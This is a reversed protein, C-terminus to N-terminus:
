EAWATLGCVRWHYHMVAALWPGQRRRMAEAAGDALAQVKASEAQAVASGTADAAKQLQLAASYLESRIAPLNIDDMYESARQLTYAARARAETLLVEPETVGPDAAGPQAFQIVRGGVFGSNKNRILDKYRVALRVVERQGSGPPVRVILVFSHEDGGRFTPLLFRVGGDFDRQRNAAIGKDRAIRQDSAVEVQRARLSEAAGLPESGVVELLDVDLPLSIRVDVAEAAQQSLVELEDVIVAPLAAADRVFHHNGGGELAIRNMLHADFDHGLGLGSTTIGQGLARATDATIEYPERPGVTALGDSILLVRHTAQGVYSGRAQQYGLQLGAYTNTEGRPKLQCVQRSVEALALSGSTPAALIRATESFVSVSMSDTPLLRQSLLQVAACVQQWPKGKMSGSADLVLHLRLPLRAVPRQDAARLRVRVTVPGGGAPLQKHSLDIAVKLASGQPQPLSPRAQAAAIAASNAMWAGGAGAGKQISAQLHQLYGRGPLYTSRYRADKPYTAVPQPLRRLQRDPSRYGVPALSPQQPGPQLHPRAIQLPRERRVAFGGAPRDLEITLADAHGPKASPLRESRGATSQDKDEAANPKAAGGPAGVDKKAVAKAPMGAGGSAAAPESSAGAINGVGAADTAPADAAKGKAEERPAAAHDDPAAGRAAAARVAGPQGEPAAEPPAAEGYAQKADWNDPEMERDPDATVATPRAAETAKDAGQEAKAVPPTAVAVAPPAAAATGQPAVSPAALQQVAETNAAPAPAKSCASAPLALALALTWAARNLGTATGTQPTTM